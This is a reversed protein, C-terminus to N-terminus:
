RPVSFNKGKRTYTLHFESKKHANLSFNPM